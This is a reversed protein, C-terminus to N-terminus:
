SKQKINYYKPNMKLRPYTPTLLLKNTVYFNQLKTFDYLFVYLLDFWKYPLVKFNNFFCLSKNICSIIENWTSNRNRFQKLIELKNKVKETFNIYIYHYNNSGSPQRYLSSKPHNNLVEIKSYQRCSMLIFTSPINPNKMKSLSILDLIESLYFQKMYLDDVKIIDENHSKTTEEKLLEYLKDTELVGVRGRDFEKKKIDKNNIISKEKNIKKTMCSNYDPFFDLDGTIIGIFSYSEVYKKMVEGTLKEFPYTPRFDIFMDLIPTDGYIMFGNDCDKLQKYENRRSQYKITQFNDDPHHQHVFGKHVPIYLNLNSPVLCIRGKITEGHGKIIGMKKTDILRAKQSVIKDIMNKHKPFKELFKTLVLENKKLDTISKNNNLINRFKIGELERISENIISNLMQNIDHQSTNTYTNISRKKPKKEPKTEPKTEPNKVDGFSKFSNTLIKELNEEKKIQSKKKDEIKQIEKKKNHYSQSLPASGFDSYSPIQPPLVSLHISHDLHSPSSKKKLLHSKKSM